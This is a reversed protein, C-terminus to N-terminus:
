ADLYYCAEAMDTLCMVGPLARDEEREVNVDALKRPIVYYKGGFGVINAMSGVQLLRPAAMDRFAQFAGPDNVCFTRAALVRDDPVLNVNYGDITSTDWALGIQPKWRSVFLAEDQPSSLRAGKRRDDETPSLLKAASFEVAAGQSWARLSLDCDGFGRDYLTDYWGLAQLASHRVCPFNAYYIGFVTGILNFRLGMVLTTDTKRITRWREERQVYDAILTDDWGDVYLFDDSHAVVYEGTAHHVALAQTKIPGDADGVHRVNPAEVALPSVVIIEYDGRTTAYINELTRQLAAEHISPLLISIRPSM